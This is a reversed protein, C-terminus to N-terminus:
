EAAKWNDFVAYDFGAKIRHASISPIVNGPTVTIAGNIARLNSKAASIDDGLLAKLVSM